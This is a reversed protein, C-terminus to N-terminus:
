FSNGFSLREVFDREVFLANEHSFRFIYKSFGFMSRSSSGLSDFLSGFYDRLFELIRFAMWQFAKFVWGFSVKFNLDKAFCMEYFKVM